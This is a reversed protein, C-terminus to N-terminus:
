LLVHRGDDVYVAQLRLLPDAAVKVVDELQSENDM